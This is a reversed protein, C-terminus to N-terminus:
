TSNCLVGQTVCPIKVSMERANEASVSEWGTLPLSPIPSPMCHSGSGLRQQKRYLYSGDVDIVPLNAQVAERVRCVDPFCVIIRGDM